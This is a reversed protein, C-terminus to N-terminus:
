INITLIDSLKTTYCPSLMNRRLKWDGGNGMIGYKVINHGFSKNIQDVTTNLKTKRSNDTSNFLSTQFSNEPTIENILVGAKKYQYGKIYIAKLAYNAWKILEGSDNTPFPLQIHKNKYYQKLDSRFQNTQIFVTLSNCNSKQKRLKQGIRNAFTSVSEEMTKLEEVMKGFSRSVCMGEKPPSIQELPICSIGRLEYVIKLGQITLHKKIWSDNTNMLDLATFIKNDNLIKEYRRGIGWLDGVKFTAMHYKIKEEQVLELVGVTPNLKKAIKNAAKALTKTLGIGISIPIKTNQRVTKRIGKCYETLDTHQFGKLDLFIEDISYIQYNPAYSSITTMVRSSLDGYLAYNSSFVQINHQKVLEKIEFSPVGMKIGLDKAEQSRAIVCGDNNSLVVVPLNNISPKFVRECSAYFNNCDCLAFM